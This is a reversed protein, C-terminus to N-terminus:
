NYYETFANRFLLMFQASLAVESQYVIFITQYIKKSVTNKVTFVIHPQVKGEILYLDIIFKFKGADIQYSIHVSTVYFITMSDLISLAIRNEDLISYMRTYFDRLLKIKHQYDTELRDFVSAVGTLTFIFSADDTM